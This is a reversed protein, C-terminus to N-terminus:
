YDTGTLPNESLAVAKGAADGYSQPLCFGPGAAEDTVVGEPCYVGHDVLGLSNGSFASSTGLFAPPGLANKPYNVQTDGDIRVTPTIDIQDDSYEVR